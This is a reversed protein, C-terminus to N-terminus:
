FLKSSVIDGLQINALLQQDPTNAIASQAYVQTVEVEYQSIIFNPRIKGNKDTFSAQHIVKFKDGIKIKNDRGLNFRLQTNSVEIIKGHSEVCQMSADLEALAKDLQNNIALGYESQWFRRSNIEVKKRLDFDWTADTQYSFSRVKEGKYGDYLEIQMDFYRQTQQNGLWQSLKNQSEGLSLDTLRGTLIYQADSIRSLENLMGRDLQGTVNHNVQAFIIPDAYYDRADLNISQSQIAQYLNESVKNAINYIGGIQAQEQHSIIFPIVAISKKYDATFCQRDEAFIDARITIKINNNSLQEDIIEINNVVGSSRVMFLDQTLLGNSVQQTSSISAGSFLLAEKIADDIAKKRAKEIQGKYVMASGTSEYWAAQLSFSLFYTCIFYIFLQKIM